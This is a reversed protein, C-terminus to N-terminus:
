ARKGQITTKSVEEESEYNEPEELRKSAQTKTEEEREKEKGRVSVDDESDTMGVEHEDEPPPAGKTAKKDPTGAKSPPPIAM